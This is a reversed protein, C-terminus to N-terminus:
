NFFFDCFFQFKDERDFEKQEIRKYTAAKLEYLMSDLFKGKAVLDNLENFLEKIKETECLTCYLALQEDLWIKKRRLSECEFITQKSLNFYEQAKDYLKLEYYTHGILVNILAADLEDPAMPLCQNLQELAEQYQGAEIYNWGLNRYIFHLLVPHEDKAESELPQYLYKRSAEPGHLGRVSLEKLMWAGVFRGGRLDWQYKLLEEALEHALHFERMRIYTVGLFIQAEYLTSKDELEKATSEALCLNFVADEYKGIKRLYRAFKIYLIAPNIKFKISSAIARRYYYAMMSYNQEKFYYYGMQEDISIVSQNLSYKEAMQMLEEYKQPLLDSNLQQELWQSVQSEIPLCFEEFTYFSQIEGDTLQIFAEYIDRLTQEPVQRKNTEIMSLYHQTIGFHNFSGQKLNFQKRAQRIKEGTTLFLFNM